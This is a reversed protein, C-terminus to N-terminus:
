EGVLDYELADRIKVKYFEGCKLSKRKVYVIGDVDYASMQSRGLYVGSEKSDILVDMTKGILKKNYDYSMNKQLEM